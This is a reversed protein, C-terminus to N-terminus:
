LQLNKMKGSSGSSGSPQTTPSNHNNSGLESAILEQIDQKIQYYNVEILDSDITRIKPISKFRQEEDKIAKHNNMIENHFIKLDIQTQPDDAVMGVFEGSSLTSIKAAPIAFDLQTSRSVSTESSNISISQRSQQIKGFRESLQKATDGTVQGSIVNGIINLIVEAQERGYDKKLQSYDQVALTTAVKNSRATAILTDIHNFYITPFEDFVLSCKQKDKQNVLKIMRSIYLSLVAGYVQQKQPNNGVCIIKPDKPNNLDLTFDNGSLVYYLSPSSLRAMSIKASAVQGELQDYAENKWASIFPNILVEIEPERNLVEFLYKYEIQMLEIVHPLTCFVGNRYKKLYWIIGTVFNIPSEVFFDGQKKIWERNLGLMITRAAETADTIDTMSEPDLPNCRHTRSLDEFNIVYFKAPNSSKLLTNYAIRTLDDYKFDYIFMNFGKTIHQTIIHRIAFYSKGSGPTGLVLLGR